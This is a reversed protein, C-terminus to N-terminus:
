QRRSKTENLKLASSACDIDQLVDISGQMFIILVKNEIESGYFVRENFNHRM